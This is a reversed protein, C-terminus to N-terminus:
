LLFVATSYSGITLKNDKVTVSGNSCIMNSLDEVFAAMVTGMGFNHVVLIQQDGYTRFWASISPYSGAEGCAEFKGKALAPYSDRLVGFKRYVNLLSTEDKAQSEVSISANLMGKDVKGALRKDALGSGDANWMVPTRVFEDGNNKQGYYGLEEGQYIYPEGGATLLVAAALKMKPLSKGLETAARVEDHNTLKTAAIYDTRYGEYLKRYGNITNVFDRGNAGNIADRLTWWFSFEFFAPLGQYYPAVENAGSLQEGIMYFKGEVGGHARYRRNCEAFWKMLFVPNEVSNADHYIHKVADLRFGDVGLAIWKEASNAMEKFAPSQECAVSPGYNLDAFWNTWFHSHFMESVMDPMLIDQADINSLTLAKGWEMRNKGSPAGYKHSGWETKHTKVLVGWDTLLDLSLTLTNNDKKYFEAINGEGYYLYVGSNQPGSNSVADVKNVTLTKPKNNQLTVTFEVKAAETTGAVSSFWQGGDYGAAGEASIMPIKGDKIDNKPDSSFIYYDRYKSNKDAQAEKFWPHASATHNLVYDLYIKIGKSHATNVLRIFDQETGFEPDVSYYDMVDYGHYSSSPHIPSLWLATVGMEKLYDLKSEIGKFDGVGDGDSDAFSYVLIQYTIGSEGTREVPTVVPVDPGNDDPGNKGCGICMM